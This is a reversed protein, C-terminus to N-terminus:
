RADGAIRVLRVAVATGPARHDGDVLRGVQEDPGTIAEHRNINHNRVEVQRAGRQQHQHAGEGPALRYEPSVLLRLLRAVPEIREAIRHQDQLPQSIISKSSRRTCSPSAASRCRFQQGSRDSRDTRIRTASISSRWCRSTAQPTTASTSPAATAYPRPARLNLPPSILATIP